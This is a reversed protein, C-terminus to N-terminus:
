FLYVVIRNLGKPLGEQFRVVIRFRLFMVLYSLFSCSVCDKKQLCWTNIQFFKDSLVTTHQCIITYSYLWTTRQLSKDPECWKWSLALKCSGGLAQLHYYIVNYIYDYDYCVINRLRVIWWSCVVIMSEVANPPHEWHAAISGAYQVHEHPLLEALLTQLDLVCM